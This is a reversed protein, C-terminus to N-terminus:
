QWPWGAIATLTWASLSSVVVGVLACLLVKWATALDTDRRHAIILQVAGYLVMGVAVAALVILVFMLQPLVRLPGGLMPLCACHLPTESFISASVAPHATM